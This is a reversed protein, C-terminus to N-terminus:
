IMGRSLKELVGNQTNFQWPEMSLAAGIDLCCCCCSEGSVGGEEEFLGLSSREPLMLTTEEPESLLGAFFDKIVLTASWPTGKLLRASRLLLRSPILFLIKNPTYITYMQIKL